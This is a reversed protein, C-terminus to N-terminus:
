QLESWSQVKFALRDDPGVETAQREVTCSGSVDIQWGILSGYLYTGTTISINGYYAKKASDYNYCLINVGFKSNPNNNSGGITLPGNSADYVRLRSAYNAYELM